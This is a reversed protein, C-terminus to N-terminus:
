KKMKGNMTFLRRAVCFTSIALSDMVFVLGLHDYLWLLGTPWLGYAVVREWGAADKGEEDCTVSFTM